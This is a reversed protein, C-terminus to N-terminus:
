RLMGKAFGAQLVTPNHRRFHDVVSDRDGLVASLLARSRLCKRRELMEGTQARRMVILLGAGLLEALLIPHAGAAINMALWVIAIVVPILLAGDLLGLVTMWDLLAHLKERIHIVPPQCWGITRNFNV